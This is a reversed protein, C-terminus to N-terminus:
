KEVDEMLRSKSVSTRHGILTIPLIPMTSHSYGRWARCTSYGAFALLRSPEPLRHRGASFARGFADLPPEASM